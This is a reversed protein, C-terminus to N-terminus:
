SGLPVILMKSFISASDRRFGPITEFSKEVWGISPSRMMLACFSIWSIRGARSSYTTFVESYLAM